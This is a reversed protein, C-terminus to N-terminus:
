SLYSLLVVGGVVVLIIGATCVVPLLPLAPGVDGCREDWSREREQWYPGLRALNRQMEVKSRAEYPLRQTKM